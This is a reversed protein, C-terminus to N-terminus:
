CIKVEPAGNPAACGGGGGGGGGSSNVTISMTVVNSDATGDNAKWTFSDSGTFNSTPTYSFSGDTNLTFSSGNSPGAVVQYTLTDGDVDTADTALGDAITATATTNETMSFSDDVAVPPDNVSNVTITVTATNSLASSPDVANYTFSDTGHYNAAPTYSFSGDSNLTFAAADAPGAAEVATLVDGDVDTDNGLVGPAAITMPTDEDTVYNPDDYAVPADNVPNITITVTATNSDLTGDNAHYTFSDSGNYNATPVYSFTGDPNLTFSAAHAPGVDQVATLVDGNADTDNALVSTANLTTDEDTSYSPDDNAVPAVDDLTYGNLQTLPSTRGAFAGIRASLTKGGGLGSAITVNNWNGLVVDTAGATVSGSSLPGHGAIFTGSLHSYANKPLQSGNTHNTGCIVITQGTLGAGADKDAAPCPDGIAAPSGAVVADTIEFSYATTKLGPSMAPAQKIWSPNSFDPGTSVSVTWTGSRNANAAHTTAVFTFTASHGPAIDDGAGAGSMYFCSDATQATTWTPPADNCGTITWFSNPAAIEVAGIKRVTGTNKVKLTYTTGVTDGVFQSRPTISARADFGHGLAVGPVVAVVMMGIAVAIAFRGSLRRFM